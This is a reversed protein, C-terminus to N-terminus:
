ASLLWDALAEGYLQHGKDNPHVQDGYLGYTNTSDARRSVMWPNVDFVTVGKDAEAIEWMANVYASWPYTASEIDAREPMALLVIAPDVTTFDRFSTILAQM